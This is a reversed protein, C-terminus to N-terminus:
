IFIIKQFISNNDVINIECQVRTLHVSDADFRWCHISKRVLRLSLAPVDYFSTTNGRSLRNKLLTVWLITPEDRQPCCFRCNELSWRHDDYM